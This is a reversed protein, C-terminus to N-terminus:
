LSSCIVRRMSPVVLIRGYIYLWCNRLLACYRMTQLQERCKWVSELQSQLERCSSRNECM